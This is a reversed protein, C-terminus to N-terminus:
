EMFLNCRYLIVQLARVRVRVRVREKEREREEPDNRGM